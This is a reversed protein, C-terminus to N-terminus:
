NEELLYDNNVKKFSLGSNTCIIELITEIEYNDFTTFIQKKGIKPNSFKISINYINNLDSIVNELKENNYKFFHTKWALYNQDHQNSKTIKNKELTGTEGPTLFEAVLKNEISSFQVKGTKVSVEIKDIEKYSKINFSTGLVKVEANNVIIIFPKKKNKSIEFFAEGELQVKRKDSDFKSPYILKSNRNLTIKSGDSLEITQMKDYVNTQCVLTESTSSNYLYYGSISLVFGLIVIAAIKLFFNNPLRRIRSETEPKMDRRIRSSVNEWAKDVNYSNNNKITNMIEKDKKLELVLNELNKDFRMKHEFEIIENEYMENDIYKSADIIQKKNYNNTKM